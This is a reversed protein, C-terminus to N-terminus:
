TFSGVERSANDNKWVTLTHFGFGNRVPISFLRVVEVVVDYKMRFVIPRYQDLLDTGPSGLDDSINQFFQFAFAHLHVNLEVV